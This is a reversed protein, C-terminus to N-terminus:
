SELEDLAERAIQQIFTDQDHDAFLRLREKAATTGLDRLSEVVGERIGRSAAHSCSSIFRFRLSEPADKSRAVARLLVYWYDDAPQYSKGARPEWNALDRLLYDLAFRITRDGIESLVDIATDLGTPGGATACVQIFADICREPESTQRILRVV